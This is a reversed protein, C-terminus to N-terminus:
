LFKNNIKIKKGFNNKLFLNQKDYSFYYINLIFLILVYLCLIYLKRIVFFEYMRYGHSHIFDGYACSLYNLSYM